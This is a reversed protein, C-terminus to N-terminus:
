SKKQPLLSIIKPNFEVIKRDQDKTSETLFQYHIIDKNVKAVKRLRIYGGSTKEEKHELLLTVFQSDIESVNESLMFANWRRHEVECELEFEQSSKDPSLVWDIQSHHDNVLSWRNFLYRAHAASSRRDFETIHTWDQEATKVELYAANVGEAMLRVNEFWKLANSSYADLGWFPSIGATQTKSSRGVENWSMASRDYVFPVIEPLHVASLIQEWAYVKEAFTFNKIENGTAIFVHTFPVADRLGFYDNFTLNNADQNRFKISVFPSVDQIHRKLFPLEVFLKVKAETDVDVVVLEPLSLGAVEKASMRELHEFTFKGVTGSSGPFHCMLLVEKLIARGSKGLGVILIRPQRSDNIKLPHNRILWAAASEELNILHTWYNEKDQNLSGVSSAERLLAPEAIHAYVDLRKSTTDSKFCSSVQDLIKLNLISDSTMIWIKSPRKWCIVSLDIPSLGDGVWVEAGLNEADYIYKNEANLELVTLFVSKGDKIVRESQLIEFGKAGLGIILVLDDPAFLSAFRKRLSLWIRIRVSRMVALLGLVPLTWSVFLRLIQLLPHCTATVDGNAFMMQTTLYAASSMENANLEILRHGLSFTQYSGCFALPDDVPAKFIFVLIFVIGFWGLFLLGSTKADRLHSSYIGARNIQQEAM